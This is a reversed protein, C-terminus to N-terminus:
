LESLDSDEEESRLDQEYNDDVMPDYDEDEENEAADSQNYSLSPPPVEVAEATPTAADEFSGSQKM